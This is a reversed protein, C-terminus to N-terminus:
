AGDINPTGIGQFSFTVTAPADVPIDYAVDTIIVNGGLSKGSSYTLTLSAAAAGPGIIATTDDLFCTFTGSWYELGPIFGKHGSAADAMDTVDLADAGWSVTWSIVNETYGTPFAISGGTGGMVEAM